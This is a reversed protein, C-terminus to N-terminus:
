SSDTNQAPASFSCAMTTPAASVIPVLCEKGPQMTQASAPTSTVLSLGSIRRQCLHWSTETSKTGQPTLAPRRPAHVSAITAFKGGWLHLRLHMLRDDIDQPLRPLRGVIDNRIVFTIGANMRETRPRGGRSFTYGAGVEKLQSHETCRHGGQLVDTESGSAGPLVAWRFSEEIVSRPEHQM